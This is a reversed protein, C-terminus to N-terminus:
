GKAIKFVPANILLSPGPELGQQALAKAYEPHFQFAGEKLIERDWPNLLLADTILGIYDPVSTGWTHSYLVASRIARAGLAKVKEKVMLITEGTACIEDVILVRRDKVVAPPEVLWQPSKHKIIDNVRRSVRVPYLEAQLMHAILTGPYFGGRGVALILEPGFRFVAEALGKCIGHFEEWSIPRIDKRNQYDYPNRSMEGGHPLNSAGPLHVTSSLRALRNYQCKPNLVFYGPFVNYRDDTKRGKERWWSRQWISATM